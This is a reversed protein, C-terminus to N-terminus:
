SRVAEMREVLSTLERLFDENQMRQLLSETTQTDTRQDNALSSDTGGTGNSKGQDPSAQVKATATRTKLIEPVDNPDGPIDLLDLVKGRYEEDNLADSLLKLGQAERYPDLDELSEFWVRPVDMGLVEFVSQFIEVWAGQMIRMANKTSPSLTQAAGYSSGAASSDALLEINPVNLATAAMAAVPRATAFDYGKGAHQFAAIDQGEVMSAANGFGSMGAIKVAANQAGTKTKSIVKYLIKALSENVVRGYQIIEEYAAIWPMAAVADPIGLPWGVQRNFRGDVIITDPNIAITDGNQTFSKQKPGTYAKTYYWRKIEKSDKRDQPNWKRLYAWVEEPYEPNVRLSVIQNFPIRRVEKKSTDCALLINGDAYRAKQLEERATTSLLNQQNVPNSCFTEIATPRGRKGSRESGEINVGKSWVYGTHLDVGRKALGDGVVQPRIVNSIEQVEDLDLGELRDGSSIDGILTWGRDELKIMARVEDLSERLSANEGRLATLESLVQESPLVTRPKADEQLAEYTAADWDVM